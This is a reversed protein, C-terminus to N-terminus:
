RLPQFEDVNWTSNADNLTPNTYSIRNPFHYTPDFTITTWRGEDTQAMTRAQTFLGAITFTQPDFETVECSGMELPAPSCTATAESIEGFRIVITHTQLHWLSITTIVLRYDGIGKDQWDSEAQDITDLLQDTQAPPLTPAISETTPTAAATEPNPTNTPHPTPSDNAQPACAILLLLLLCFLKNMIAGQPTNTQDLAPYAQRTGQVAM